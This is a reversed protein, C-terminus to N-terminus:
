LHVFKEDATKFMRTGDAAPKVLQFAQEQEIATVSVSKGNHRGIYADREAESSFAFIEYAGGGFGFSTDGGFDNVRAFYHM